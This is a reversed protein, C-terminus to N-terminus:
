NGLAGFVAFFIGRLLYIFVTLYDFYFAVICGNSILIVIFAAQRFYLQVPVYMRRKFIMLVFRQVAYGDIPNDLFFVVFFKCRIRIFATPNYSRTEGFFDLDIITIIGRTVHFGHGFRNIIIVNKRESIGIVTKIFKCRIRFFIVSCIFM